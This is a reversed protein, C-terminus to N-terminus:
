RVSEEQFGSREYFRRGRTSAAGTDLVLLTLEQERAWAEVAALLAQGTGQGEADAAVALEGIYAQMEGTFAVERAVSAFGMVEGARAAVFVAGDPGIKSISTAVWTRAAAQMGAESRWPAIGVTLREVLHLLAELDGERYQRIVFGPRAM